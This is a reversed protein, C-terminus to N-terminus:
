EAIGCFRQRREQYCNTGACRQRPWTSECGRCVFGNPWHRALERTKAMRGIKEVCNFGVGSGLPEPGIDGPQRLVLPDAPHCRGLFFASPFSADLDADILHASAHAPRATPGSARM